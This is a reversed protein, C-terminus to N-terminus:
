KIEGSTFKKVQTRAFVKVLVKTEPDGLGINKFSIDSIQTRPLVEALGKAGIYRIKIILEM